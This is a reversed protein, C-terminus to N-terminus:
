GHFSLRGATEAISGLPQPEGNPLYGAASACLLRAWGMQLDSGQEALRRIVHLQSVFRKLDLRLTKRARDGLNGPANSSEALERTLAALDIATKEIAPLCADIGEPSPALLAVRLSELQESARSVRSPM